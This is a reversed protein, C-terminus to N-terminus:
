AKPPADKPKPKAKPKARPKAKPKAKAGSKPKPKVGARPKPKPKAKSVQPDIAKAAKAKGKADAAATKKRSVPKPADGGQDWQLMMQRNIWALGALSLGLGLFSAVRILGALGSMDILFVKAITLGIGVIAAKRILDSRKSFAFFLLGVSVLLMAVTYSYLEGDTTGYGALTDGQWFRRIELGVYFAVLGVAMAGLGGLLRRHLHDFRLAVFGFLLAPLLYALMLTDLIPPGQVTEYRAFLPNVISLTTALALLGIVGFVVALGIRVRRMWGGIKLRYLQNAASILWILGFVGVVAHGSDVGDVSRLWGVSAFVGGLSWVASEMVVTAAMRGRTRLLFWTAAFLMVVGGYVFIFEWLPADYAWIVGPDALLRYGTAVGGVQVFVSLLKLDLQRDIFAALVVMVAIALTLAASSLMVVLAFSVMVMASLAFIAVRRRDEGDVKAVQVALLTM